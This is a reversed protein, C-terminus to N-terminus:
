SCDPAAPNRQCNSGPISRGQGAAPEEASTNRNMTLGTQGAFIAADKRADQVEFGEIIKKQSEPSWYIRLRKRARTIATYFISHTIREEIDKTIVVKVSDYELGQAKHISVAYALQFPLDTEDPFDRDNETDGEESVFFRVVSKGPTREELLRLGSSRAQRETLSREVEISFWLGHEADDKEIRVITGKLNNYLLPAFRESENFLVPDGEKFTRVGLRYGPNCNSEQLLRNINNIGYLGDYSLCLVIEDDAERRFVSDDLRAAYHNRVIHETVDSELNRVKKWLELLDRDKTRFPNVLDHWAYMPVFYRALPFWNGFDISEIQYTDGALVLLKYEAKRLVDAMEANSVTSCEDIILLDYKANVSSSSLFKCITMFTSNGATIKRKLNEVAPNTHALFLKTQGKFFQSLLSLTWTKGTGAAGYILFVRSKAFMGCLLEEKEKCDIDSEFAIWNSIDGSYGPVGGSAEERLRDIIFKTDDFAQRVYVYQSFKKIERYYHKYYLQLNFQSIKDDISDTYQELESIPTYLRGQERMSSDIYRALFECDHGEPDLCGFLKETEPNHEPLSTAFPMRDFPICGPKLYLQSLLPMPSQSLQKRIVRNNLTHLLYRLVNAGPRNNVIIDRSRDLIDEFAAKGGIFMQRKIRLYENQSATVIDTLSEGSQTLYSMMGDYEPDKSRVSIRAGFISSYNNLECPRVSVRCDTLIYVPMPRGYVDIRESQLCVRVAYLSPIDMASFCVFRDFRSATNYAPTLTIEYYVKQGVSFPVIKYIYMRDTYKLSLDLSISRIKEAIKRHYEDLSRDTDVPFKRISGLIDMGAETRMFDRIMLYFHYYKLMLREAGDSDPTYHSVSKQLFGHFDTLFRYQGFGKIYSLAPKILPWDADPDQGTARAHIRVAIHEVLDRSPGLLNQSLLGRTVSGVQLQGINDSLMKDITKIRSDIKM